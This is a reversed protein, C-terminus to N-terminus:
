RTDRSKLSNRCIQLSNIIVSSHRLHSYFILLCVVVHCLIFVFTDRVCVKVSCFIYIVDYIKLYLNQM